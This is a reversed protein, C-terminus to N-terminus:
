FSIQGATGASRWFCTSWWCWTSCCPHLLHPSPKLLAGRLLCRRSWLSSQFLLPSHACLDSDVCSGQVSAHYQLDSFHAHRVCCAESCCRGESYTFVEEGVCVYVWVCVCVAMVCFFCTRLRCHAFFLRVFVLTIPLRREFSQLWVQEM